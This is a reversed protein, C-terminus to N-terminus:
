PVAPAVPEADEVRWGLAPIGDREFPSPNFRLVGGQRVRSALMALAEDRIRGAITRVEACRADVDRAVEDVGCGCVSDHAGDWLLMRWCRELQAGPWAVGPVLAALPEAYREVLAEVQGR